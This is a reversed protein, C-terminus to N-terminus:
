SATPNTWDFLECLKRSLPTRKLSPNQGMLREIAEIDDPSFARGCYIRM